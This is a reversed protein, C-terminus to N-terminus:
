RNIYFVFAADLASSTWIQWSFSESNKILRDNL